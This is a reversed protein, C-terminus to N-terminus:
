LRLMVVNKNRKKFIVGSIEQPLVYKISDIYVTSGVHAKGRVWVPVKMEQNIMEFLSETEAEIEQLEREKMTIAIKIKRIFDEAHAKNTRLQRQMKKKGEEFVSIENLVRDKRATLERQKQAFVENRGVSLVTKIHSSNGLNYTEIGKVACTKGGLLMGKSGSVIVRGMTNIDSNMIYNAKVNGKAKINASEFFSGSVEGEAELYCDHRSCSGRKIMINGGAILKAAEVNYEVIIDGAAKIYGGSYVSGVVYVSGDVEVKGYVGTVDERIVIMKTIVIRGNLLEFKGSIRAYYTMGDPSLSFGQGKLTSIEIGRHAHIIEGFVNVGDSGTEAPHYTALKQGEEVIEFAEINVYDVGGDPLPAPIRPLDTRVFFEYYGDKGDIAPKGSAILVKENQRRRKIMDKIVAEDVGFIIGRKKLEQRIDEETVANGPKWPIFAYVKNGDEEIYIDIEKKGSVDMYVTELVPKREKSEELLKQRKQKMDTKSFILRAYSSVDLGEELGLRIEQMQRDSFLPNTYFSIDIRKELGLRIEQMQMWTYETKAYVSVDLGEELGARIEYIQRDRMDDAIWKDIPFEKELSIRIEELEKGTFGRKLYPKLDIFSYWSLRLQKMTEYSYSPNAYTTVDVKDKLGLRIQQMQFWDYEPNAYLSVDLGEELGLRIEQMQEALYEANELIPADVGHSRAEKLEQEQTWDFDFDFENMKAIGNVM